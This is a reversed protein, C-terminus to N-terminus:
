RSFAPYPCLAVAASGQRGTTPYRHNDSGQRESYHRSVGAYPKRGQQHRDPVAQLGFQDRRADPSSKGSQTNSPLLFPDHAKERQGGYPKEVSADNALKSSGARKM